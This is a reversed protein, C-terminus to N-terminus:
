KAKPRMLKKSLWFHVAKSHKTETGLYNYNPKPDGSGFGLIRLNDGASVSIIEDAHTAVVGNDAIKAINIYTLRNEDAAPIIEAEATLHFSGEATKLCFRGIDLGNEYSVAELTGCEYVTEFCTIYGAKNGAPKRGLSKGNLFLEVEDGAAFVEVVVPNGEMGPYTWSSVADSLIWPTKILTHAYKDPRQVAIYPRKRLGFVLERFYSLPRRFGTIDIDGCYALQCPFLAGFGGEGFAYAPVGLGAEGLYDWGTWTFDGILPPLRKVLDWNRAIEPPYTESGVMVRHPYQQADSEYRATMYNYGVLDMGAAASELRQSLLPHQVIDDMYIDMAAMFDNVDGDFEGRSAASSLVDTVINGISDGAAYVGNIGALIYRTPDLKRVFRGMERGLASGQPMSIEPIENGLSYLIVSPHNFDKEVMSSLDSQWWKDLFLAYDNDKKPRSWMDFAEDMVYMGLEDCARLLAPAAPHHAMRIANFGAEKLKSIRRYEADYYTAAGLIGSDHHICAGRLKVPKGNIQLGQRADLCLTRIGFVSESRDCETEGCLLRVECRYLHPADASWLLPSPIVLTQHLTEETNGPLTIPIANKAVCVGNPDYIFTEAAVRQTGFRCNSIAFEVSIAAYESGIHQTSVKLGGDPLHLADATLLHVDRYIGSGTYWRSNPMANNKVLVRLENEGGYNLYANLSVRFVSYGFPQKGVLQGNLYVLANMYIGDFKVAIIQDQWEEPAFFQKVYIYNGGDRYGCAAGNPSNPHPARELMADHPLTIEKAFGPVNWSLAFANVEEWFKWSQNFPIMKM